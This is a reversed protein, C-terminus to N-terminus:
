ILATATRSQDMAEITKAPTWGRRQNPVLDASELEKFWGPSTFHSHVDIRGGAAIQDLAPGAQPAPAAAQEAGGCRAALMGTGMVAALGALFHRRDQRM